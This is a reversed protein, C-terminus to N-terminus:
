DSVTRRLMRGVQEALIFDTEEDIDISELRNMEMMQPRKGIRAGSERFSERSFIYLNSNEEYLPPLDQTRILKDPNHNVAQADKDYLRTQLRNVSFLSDYRDRDALFMECGRNLTEVSLLPNTTHTQIYYEEGIVDMDHEIIANMSVMDGCLKQPREIISVEPFFHKAQKVIEESDTDIYVNLIYKCHMLTNLVHYFLPRGNFDRLNKNKVRESHGKMPLLAAFKIDM